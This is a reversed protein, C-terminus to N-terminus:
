NNTFFCWLGVMKKKQLDVEELVVGLHDEAGQHSRHSVNVLLSPAPREAEVQDLLVAARFLDAGPELVDQLLHLRHETRVVVFRGGPPSPAHRPGGGGHPFLVWGSGHFGVPTSVTM